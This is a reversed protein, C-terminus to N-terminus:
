AFTDSSAIAATATAVSAALATIFSRRGKLPTNGPYEDVPGADIGAPSDPAIHSRIGTITRKLLNFM